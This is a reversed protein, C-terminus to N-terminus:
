LLEAFGTNDAQLVRLESSYATEVESLTLVTNGDRSIPSSRPQWTHAFYAKQSHFLMKLGVSFMNNLSIYDVFLPITGTEIKRFRSSSTDTKEDGLAVLTQERLQSRSYSTCLGLYRKWASATAGTILNRHYVGQLEHPPQMQKHNLMFRLVVLLVTEKRLAKESM